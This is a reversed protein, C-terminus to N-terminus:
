GAKGMNYIILLLTLIYVQAASWFPLKKEHVKAIYDTGCCCIAGGFLFGDAVEDILYHSKTGKRWLLSQLEMDMYKYVQM